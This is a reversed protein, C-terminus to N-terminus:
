IGPRTSPEEANEKRREETAMVREGDESCYMFGKYGSANVHLYMLIM